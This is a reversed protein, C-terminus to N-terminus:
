APDDDKVYTLERWPRKFPGPAPGVPEFGPAREQAARETATAAHRPCLQRSTRCALCWAPDADMALRAAESASRARALDSVEASVYWYVAREVVERLTVREDLARQKLRVWMAESVTVNRTNAM